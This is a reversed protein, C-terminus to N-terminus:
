DSIASTIELYVHARKRRHAEADELLTNRLADRCKFRSADCSQDNVNCPIASSVNTKALEQM